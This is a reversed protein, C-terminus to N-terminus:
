RMSALRAPLTVANRSRTITWEFGVTMVVVSCGVRSSSVAGACVTLVTGCLWASEAMGLCATSGTVRGAAPSGIGGVTPSGIGAFSVTGWLLLVSELVPLGATGTDGPGIPTSVIRGYNCGFAVSEPQYM